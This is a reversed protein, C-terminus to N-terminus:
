GFFHLDQGLEENVPKLKIGKQYSKGTDIIVKKAAETVKEATNLAKVDAYNTGAWIYPYPEINAATKNHKKSVTKIFKEAIPSIEAYMKQIGILM